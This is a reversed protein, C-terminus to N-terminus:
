SFSIFDMSTGAEANTAGTTKAPGLVPIVPLSLPTLIRGM